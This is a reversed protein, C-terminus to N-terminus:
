HVLGQERLLSMAFRMALDPRPKLYREFAYVQEPKVEQVGIINWKQKAREIAGLGIIDLYDDKTKVCLHSPSDFSDVSDKIAIIPFSKIRNIALALSHCHGKMFATIANTDIIGKDNLRIRKKTSGDPGWITLRM